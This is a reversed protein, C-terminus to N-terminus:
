ARVRRRMATLVALGALSLGTFAPPAPIPPGALLNQRWNSWGGMNRSVGYIHFASGIMGMAATAGLLKATSNHPVATAVDRGLAAAALPPLIVPTWMFPNHYAGRFHLLAAEGVSGALGIATVAGMLRPNGTAAFRQTAVQSGFAGAAIGLTGALILAAPAGIPAGYFVGTLRPSGPRKVINYLHFGLGAVGTVIASIDTLSRMTNNRRVRPRGMRVLNLTLAAASTIIPTWMAKNRFSGRYHEVASDCLISLSLMAASGALMRAPATNKNERRAPGIYFGSRDTTPLYM